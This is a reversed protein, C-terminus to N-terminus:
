RRPLFSFCALTAVRSCRHIAATLLQPPRPRQANRSTVSGQSASCRIRDLVELGVLDRGSASLERAMSRRVLELPKEPGVGCGAVVARPEEGEEALLDHPRHAFSRAGYRSRPRGVIQIPFAKAVTSKRRLASWRCDTRQRVSASNAQAPSSGVEVASAPTVNDRWRPLRANSRNRSRAVEGLIKTTM